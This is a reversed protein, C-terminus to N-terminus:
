INYSTVKPVTETSHHTVPVTLGSGPTQESDDGTASQLKGYSEDFVDPNIIRICTDNILVSYLKEGFDKNTSRSQMETGYAKLLLQLEGKKYTTNGSQVMAKLKFHSTQKSPSKDTKIFQISVCETKKKEAKELVKKRLAVGKERKIVKLYDNRFHAVIVKLFLKVIMEFVM